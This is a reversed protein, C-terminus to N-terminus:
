PLRHVGEAVEVVEEARRGELPVRLGLLTEQLRDVLARDVVACLQLPPELLQDELADEDM